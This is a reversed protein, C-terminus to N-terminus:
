AGARDVAGFLLLQITKEVAAQISVTDRLAGYKWTVPLGLLLNAAITVDLDERFARISVGRQLVASLREGTEVGELGASAEQPLQGGLMAEFLWGYADTARLLATLFTRLAEVPEANTESCGVQREFDAVAEAVLEHLLGEKSGFHRYITGVGVGARDAIHKIEASTGLEAFADRAANLLRARNAIADARQPMGGPPAGPKLVAGGATAQPEVPPLM